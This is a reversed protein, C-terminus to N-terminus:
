KSNARRNNMKVHQYIKMSKRYESIYYTALSRKGETLSLRMLSDAFVYGELRGAIYCFASIYEDVILGKEDETIAKMKEDYYAEYGERMSEWRKIDANIDAYEDYNIKEQTNDCEFNRDYMGKETRELVDKLSDVIGDKREECLEFPSCIEDATVSIFFRKAKENIMLILREGTYGSLVATVKTMLM